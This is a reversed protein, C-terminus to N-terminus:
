PNGVPEDDVLRERPNERLPFALCGSGDFLSLSIDCSSFPFCRFVLLADAFAALLRV